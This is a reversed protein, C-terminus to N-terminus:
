EMCLGERFECFRCEKIDKGMEELDRAWYEKDEEYDGTKELMKNVMKEPDNQQRSELLYGRDTFYIYLGGVKENLISEVAWKYCALQLHYDNEEAVNEPDKVKLDNSKWDIIVWHGKDSDRVLRDIVGRFEVGRSASFLFPVEAYDVGGGLIKVLREDYVTNKLHRFARERLKLLTERDLDYGNQEFDSLRDWMGNMLSEDLPDGFHHKELYMHILAGLFLANESGYETEDDEGPFISENFPDYDTVGSLSREKVKIGLVSNYYFRLPCRKFIRFSKFSFQFYPPSQVSSTLDLQEIREDCVGFDERVLRKSGYYVGKFKRTEPKSWVISPLDGNGEYLDSKEPPFNLNFGYIDDLLDLISARERYDESTISGKEKEMLGKRVTAVLILHNEARTCGVYFVRRNEAMDELRNRRMLLYGLTSYKKLYDIGPVEVQWVPLEGEMYNWNGPEPNESSYLRVPKGKKPGVPPLRDLEPIIVMPFELGKAAHITMLSIPSEKESIVLAEGEEEEEDAMQLCYKVFETLSGNGESQFRRTTEVLKEINAMRQVGNPHVSYIATLSRDTIITRILEAITLRGSLFRWAQIQSGIERVYPNESNHFCDPTVAKGYFLDFIEMDKLGFIPSRLASLLSIRQREDTLYNLLQLMEMVEQCRFFGKGRHVMFPLGAERFMNEFTKIHSFTFFLIGVAPQNKKIKERIDPYAKYEHSEKGHKGLIGEILDAILVAETEAQDQGISSPRNLYFKVSGKNDPGTKEEDPMSIMKPATEYRELRNSGRNSFIEKFTRNFFDIPWPDSRFNHPLYVSGKLIDQRESDPLSNFDKAHRELTETYDSYISKIRDCSDRNQWFMQVPKEPNSEKIKETVSEFVTVDGGRFRYIAQRKDGVVFLKGPQLLDMGVKDRCSCLLSIIDWQVRNTDQFEDVMIYRYRQQIRKLQSPDKNRYLARLFTHSRAELDAFDLANLKEKEKQYQDICNKAIELFLNLEREFIKDPSQVYFVDPYFKEVLKVYSIDRMGHKISLLPGSSRRNAAMSRLSRFLDPIEWTRSDKEAGRQWGELLSLLERYQGKKNDSERLGELYPIINKDKIFRCYDSFVQDSWGETQFLKDGTDVVRNFTVPHDIANRVSRILNSRNGFSRFLPILLGKNSKWLSFIASEISEEMLNRQRAGQIVVYGPDLGSEVPHERLLDACFSHITSIRNKHFQERAERIREKQSDNGSKSIDGELRVLMEYIRSKMEEAAKETFTLTLIQPISVADDTLLIFCFRHSLIRTKGAGPGSTVVMNRNYDLACFQQLTLSNFM